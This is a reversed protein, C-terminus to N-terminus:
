KSVRRRALLLGAFGLGLLALTAPAPVLARPEAYIFDDMVVVDVGGGDNPGLATTGTTIRVRAIQEGANFLIGLFSLSGDNVTGDIVNRSALLVDNKDFLEIRTSDPLDVDTFVAGFASVGAQETGNTGPIFFFGDTVNSAIPAFLRNPSLRGFTTAYTPNIDDLDLGTLGGSPSAQTLGTGLTTFQAGRTNRFVNFPTVPATGEVIPPGGGDWNIERRGSALPGANNANNPDGVAARFANVTATISAATDDGGVEFFVPAAGAIGPAYAGVGCAFVALGYRVAAATRTM